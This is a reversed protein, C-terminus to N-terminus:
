FLYDLTPFPRKLFSFYKFILPLSSLSPIVTQDRFRQVIQPRLSVKEKEESHQKGYHVEPYSYHKPLIM